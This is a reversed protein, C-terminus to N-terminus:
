RIPDLGASKIAAAASASTLSKVINECAARNKTSSAIGASMIIRRQFEPPFPGAFQVGPAPLIESILAIAVDIQGGALNKMSQEAGPQFITKREVDEGIGLRSLLDLIAPTGAGVKVYGVSKADLLTQKIAAASSVDPKPRGARVAIGVGSSALDTQTGAAVKGEKMLDGIIQPTVILLDFSEGGEISSKFNASAGFQVTVPGGAASKVQPLLKEMAARFGNSCLVRIETNQSPAALPLLLVLLAAPFRTNTM